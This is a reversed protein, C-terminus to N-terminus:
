DRWNRLMPWAMAFMVVAMVPIALRIMLDYNM